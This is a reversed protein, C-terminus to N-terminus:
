VICSSSSVSSFFYVFGMCFNLSTVDTKVIESWSIRLDVQVAVSVLSFYQFKSHSPNLTSPLSDICDLVM